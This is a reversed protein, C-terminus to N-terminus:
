TNMVMVVSKCLFSNLYQLPQELLHRSHRPSWLIGDCFHSCVSTLINMRCRMHCKVILLYQLCCLESHKISNKDNLKIFRM